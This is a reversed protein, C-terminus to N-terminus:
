TPPHSPATLTAGKRRPYNAQGPQPRTTPTRSGNRSRRGTKRNPKAEKLPKKSKRWLGPTMAPATLLYSKPHHRPIRIRHPIRADEDSSRTLLSLGALLGMLEVAMTLVLSIERWALGYEGAIANYGAGIMAFVSVAGLLQRM